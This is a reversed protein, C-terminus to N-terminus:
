GSNVLLRFTGSFAKFFPVKKTKWTKAMFFEPPINWFETGSNRRKTIGM